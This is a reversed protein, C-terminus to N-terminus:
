LLTEGPNSHIQTYKRWVQICHNFPYNLFIWDSWGLRKCHWRKKALERYFSFILLTKKSCLPWMLICSLHIIYIWHEEHVTDVDSLRESRWWYRDPEFLSKPRATTNLETGCLCLFLLTNCQQSLKIYSKMSWLRHFNTKNTHLDGWRRQNYHWVRGGSDCHCRKKWWTLDSCQFSRTTGQLVLWVTGALIYVITSVTKDNGSQCKENSLQHNMQLIDDWNSEPHAPSM